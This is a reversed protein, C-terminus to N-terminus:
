PQWPTLDADTPVCPKMASASTEPQLFLTHAGRIVRAIEVPIGLLALYGADAGAKGVVEPHLGPYHPQQGDGAEDEGTEDGEGGVDRGPKQEVLLRDGEIPLLLRIKGLHAHLRAAPLRPDGGM